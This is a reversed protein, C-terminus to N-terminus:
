ENYGISCNVINFYFTWATENTQEELLLNYFISLNILCTM